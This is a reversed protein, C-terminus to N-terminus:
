RLADAGGGVAETLFKLDPITAVVRLTDAADAAWAAGGIFLVALGVVLMRAIVNRM